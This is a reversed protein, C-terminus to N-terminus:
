KHQKKYIELLIKAYVLDDASIHEKLAVVTELFVIRSTLNLQSLLKDPLVMKKQKKILYFL